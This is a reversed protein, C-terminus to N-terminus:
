QSQGRRPSGLDNSVQSQGRRPSGLDNSVSSGLDNHVKHLRRTRPKRLQLSGLRTFENILWRCNCASTSLIARILLNRL